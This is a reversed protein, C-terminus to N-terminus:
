RKTGNAVKRFIVCLLALCLVVSLAHFRKNDTRIVLTPVPCFYLKRNVKNWFFGIWWDYWAFYVKM